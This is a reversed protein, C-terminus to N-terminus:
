LYYELITSIIVFLGIFLYISTMYKRKYIKINNYAMCILLMAIVFYFIQLLQSEILGIIAFVLSMETLVVQILVPANGKTGLNVDIVKTNM